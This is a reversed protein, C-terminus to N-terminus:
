AQAAEDVAQARQAPVEVDVAARRVAGRHVRGHREIRVFRAGVDRAPTAGLALAAASGSAARSPVRRLRYLRSRGTRAAAADRGTRVRKEPNLDKAKLPLRTSRAMPM